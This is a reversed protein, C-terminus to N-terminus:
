MVDLLCLFLYHDAKTLSRVLNCSISSAKLVFFKGYLMHVMIYEVSKCLPVIVKCHYFAHGLTEM